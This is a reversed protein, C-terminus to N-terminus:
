GTSDGGVCVRRWSMLLSPIRLGRHHLRHLAVQTEYEAVFFLLRQRTSNRAAVAMPQDNPHGRRTHVWLALAQGRGAGRTGASVEDTARPAISGLTDYCEHM